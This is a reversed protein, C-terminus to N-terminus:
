LRGRSRAIMREEDADGLGLVADALDLLLKRNNRLGTRVKARPADPPMHRASRTSREIEAVTKEIQERLEDSVEGKAKRASM